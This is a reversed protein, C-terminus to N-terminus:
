NIKDGKKQNLSYVTVELKLMFEKVLAINYLKRIKSKIDRLVGISFLTSFHCDDLKLYSDLKHLDSFELGESGAREVIDLFSYKSLSEVQISVKKNKPKLPIVEKGEYTLVQSSDHIFLTEYRSSHKDVSIRPKSKGRPTIVLTEENDAVIKYSYGLFSIVRGVVGKAM